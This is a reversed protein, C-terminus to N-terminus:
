RITPSILDPYDRLVITPVSKGERLAQEVRYRHAYDAGFGGIRRLGEVDNNASLESKRARWESLTMQWSEVFIPQVDDTETNTLAPPPIAVVSEQGHGTRSQREEDHTVALDRKKWELQIAEASRRIEEVDPSTPIESTSGPSNATPRIGMESLRDILRKM